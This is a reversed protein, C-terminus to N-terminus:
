LSPNVMTRCRWFLVEVVFSIRIYYNPPCPVFGAQQGPARGVRCQRRRLPRQLTKNVLAQSPTTLGRLSSCALGVMSLSNLSSLLLTQGIGLRLAIVAGREVGRDLMSAQMMVRTDLRRTACHYRSFSFRQSLFFGANTSGRCVPVLAERDGAKMATCSPTLSGKSNLVFICRIGSGSHVRIASLCPVCYLGRARGKGLWAVQGCDPVHSSHM